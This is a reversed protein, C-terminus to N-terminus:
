ESDGKTVVLDLLKKKWEQHAKWGMEREEQKQVKRKQEKEMKKMWINDFFIFKQEDNSTSALSIVVSQTEEPFHSQVPVPIKLDLKNLVPWNFLQRRLHGQYANYMEQHIKPSLCHPLVIQQAASYLPM